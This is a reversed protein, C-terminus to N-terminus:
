HDLDVETGISDHHIFDDSIAVAIDQGSFPIVESARRLAIGLVSNLEGENYLISDIPENYDIQKVNHLTLDNNDGDSWVATILFTDSIVIGIM